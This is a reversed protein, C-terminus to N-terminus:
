YVIKRLFEHVTSYMYPDMVLSGMVLPEDSFSGDSFTGDSFTETM